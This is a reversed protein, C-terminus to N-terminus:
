FLSITIGVHTRWSGEVTLVYSFWINPLSFHHTHTNQSPCTIHSNPYVWGQNPTLLSCKNIIHGQAARKGDDVDARRLILHENTLQSWRDTTRMNREPVLLRHVWAPLSLFLGTKRGSPFTASGSWYFTISGTRWWLVASISASAM